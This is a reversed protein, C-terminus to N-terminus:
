NFHLGESFKNIKCYESPHRHCLSLFESKRKGDKFCPVAVQPSQGVHPEDTHNM